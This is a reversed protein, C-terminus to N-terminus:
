IETKLKQLYADAEERSRFTILDGKSGWDELMHVMEPLTEKHFDSIFRLFEPDPTEEVWPMDERVQGARAIVSELCLELPYRLFFVTDACKLRMPLTRYYNGDIIFADTKLIEQLKADFEERTRNTRDSRHWLMDLYHLPLGTIDRLKRSFTSKGAGPCGVVIARRFM